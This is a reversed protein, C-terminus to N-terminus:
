DDRGARGSETGRSGVRLFFLVGAAAVVLAVAGDTWFLPDM